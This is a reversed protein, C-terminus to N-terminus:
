HSLIGSALIVDRIRSHFRTLDHIYHERARQGFEALRRVPTALVQRITGALAEARVQFRTARGLASVDHTQVPILFGSNGLRVLDEMPPAQTTVLVSGCIRTENLAHGFGEAYSPYVHVGRTQQHKRLEAAPLERAIIEINHRGRADGLMEFDDAPATILTLPPFDPNSLWARLVVSAQKQVSPGRVHLFSRFDKPPADQSTSFDRSTWGTVVRVRAQSFGSIAECVDRSFENKYLIMDPPHARLELEDQSMLWEVNPVFVRRRAFDACRLPAHGYLHEFLFVLDFPAQSRLEAPLDLPKEYELAPDWPIDLSYIEVDSVAQRFADGLVVADNHLGKTPAHVMLAKLAKM